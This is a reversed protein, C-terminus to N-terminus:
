SYAFEKEINRSLKGVMIRLAADKKIQDCKEELKNNMDM